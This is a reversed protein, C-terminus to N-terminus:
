GEGNAVDESPVVSPSARQREQNLKYFSDFSYWALVWWPIVGLQLGGALVQRVALVGLLVPFVSRLDWRGGTVQGLQVDVEHFTRKIRRATLSLPLDTEGSGVPQTLDLDLFGGARATDLLMGLDVQEPDYRVVV